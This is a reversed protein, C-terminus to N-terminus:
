IIAPPPTATCICAARPSLCATCRACACPLPPLALMGTGGLFAKLGELLNCLILNNVDLAQKFELAAKGDWQWHDEFALAQAAAPSGGEDTFLLNYNRKSNFPPDLYILDVSEDAVRERLVELNDGYHLERISPM